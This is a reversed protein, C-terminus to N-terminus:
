PLKFCSLRIEELIWDYAVEPFLLKLIMPAALIELNSFTGMCFGLKTSVFGFFCAPLIPFKGSVLDICQFRDQTKVITFLIKKTVLDM